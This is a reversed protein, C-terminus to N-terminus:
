PTEVVPLDQRIDLFAIRSGALEEGRLQQRGDNRRVEFGGGTSRPHPGGPVAPHHSGHLQERAGAQPNLRGGLAGM